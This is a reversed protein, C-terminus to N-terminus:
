SAHETRIFAWFVTAIIYIGGFAFLVADWGGAHAILWPVLIPFSAAGFNGCMNTVASWTATQAGGCTMLTASYCPNVVGACYMGTSIVLVALVPDAVFWATFILAACLLLATMAMGQRAIRRSQTRRLLADSILGGSFGGAVDALLPLTTLWASKVLAMGRAEQLYTAFWSAFFIYGAARCFQQLCLLGLVPNATLSRWSAASAESSAKVASPGILELEIANVAPHLAPEDRHWWAFWAAWLVGPVAYLVFMWRWGLDSVLWATLPAAVISGASMFGSFAGAATAQSSKPFWRAMASVGVPVLGAQAVGMFARSATMWGLQGLAFGATALSWMVAYLALAWRAGLRQALMAAPIQCLAYPWFFASMMMGSQEKTLGLDARITSEAPAVGNRVFYALAAAVCLGALVVHRARTPKM